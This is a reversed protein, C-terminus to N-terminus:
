KILSVHTVDGIRVEIGDRKLVAVFIIRTFCLDSIGGVTRIRHIESGKEALDRGVM